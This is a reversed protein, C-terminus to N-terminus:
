RSRLQHAEGAPLAVSGAKYDIEAKWTPLSFNKAADPYTGPYYNLGQPQFDYDFSKIDYTYRAGGIVTWRDTL